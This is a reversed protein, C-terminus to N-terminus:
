EIIQASISVGKYYYNIIDRYSYGEKAMQNAGYISMGIGDGIGKTLIRVKKEYEDIYYCSSKLGFLQGFKEGSIVESGIRQELVYDSGDKTQGNQLEEMGISELNPYAARLISIFEEWEFYKVDIYNDSMIDWKSETKVLYAYADSKYVSNGDRTNGASLHHFPVIVPQNNYKIIEGQTESILDLLYQYNGAFKEAGWMQELEEM